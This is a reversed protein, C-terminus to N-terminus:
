ADPGTAVPDSARSGDTRATKRVWAHDTKGSPLRRVEDVTVIRRPVKFAALHERCHADLDDAVLARGRRPAIVAVVREGWREDPVGVVAADFVAPHAKLVAEVEDPFVKEGGTNISSAGRGLLTVTGDAEVRGLDGPIAWREGGVIPFTAATLEPDNRYGLPIHGRRAIVGIRGTDIGPILPELDDDLVATHDGLPFRAAPMAAQGPWAIANGQGGTESAGYGDVVAIWPLHATLEARVAPSLVAGGSVVAVLDDLSWRQPHAALADALPRGFADGVIVVLSAREAVVLDWLDEAVFTSSPLTVVTGGALLTGLAVWQATGHILPSATVARARGEHARDVLETPTAPVDPETGALVAAGRGAGLAAFLIDEHRWEVGKPMGTTGGTYLLYRDDGSRGTPDPRGAPAAALRAEHAGGRGVLATVEDGEARLAAVAPDVTAGLDPGHLVVRPRADGLLYTMEAATYRYNVNFPIARLKYAALLAELHEHGNRLAVGVRDGPGVGHEALVAALRDARDDLAAFTLRSRGAVVAERGGVRDVVGEFLDALNWSRAM